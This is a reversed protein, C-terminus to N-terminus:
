APKRLVCFVDKGFLFGTSQFDVIEFPLETLIKRFEGINLDNGCEPAYDCCAPGFHILFLGGPKLVRYADLFTQYPRSLHEMADVSYIMDVSNTPLSIASPTTRVFCSGDGDSLRGTSCGLELLM